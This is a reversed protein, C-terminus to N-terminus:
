KDGRLKLGCLLDGGLAGSGMWSELFSSMAEVESSVGGGYPIIDATELVRLVREGTIACRGAHADLIAAQFSGQGLRPRKFM